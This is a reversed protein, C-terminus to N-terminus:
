PPASPGNRKCFLSKAINLSEEAASVLQNASYVKEAAFNYQYQKCQNDLKKKEPNQKHFFDEKGAEKKGQDSGATGGPLRGAQNIRFAQYRSGL